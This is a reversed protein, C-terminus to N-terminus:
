LWNCEVLKFKSLFNTITQYQFFTWKLECLVFIYWLFMKGDTKYIMKVYQKKNNFIFFHYMWGIPVYFIYLAAM